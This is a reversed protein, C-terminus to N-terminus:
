PAINNHVWKVMEKHNFEELYEYIDQDDDDKVHFNAGNASFWLLLEKYGLQAVEFIVPTGFSNRTNLDAGSKHLWAVGQQDNEVALFHLVTEGTSNTLHLLKPEQQLMDEAEDFQHAYVANRFKYWSNNAIEM